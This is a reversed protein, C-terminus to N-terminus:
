ADVDFTIEGRVAVGDPIVTVTGTVVIEDGTESETSTATILTSGLKAGPNVTASLGDASATVTAVDEDSSAWVPVDDAPVPNGAANVLGLTAGFDAADDNVTIDAMSVEGQPTTFLIFGAVAPGPDLEEALARLAVALVRPHSELLRDLLSVRRM